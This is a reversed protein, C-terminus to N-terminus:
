LTELTKGSATDLVVVTNRNANAVFLVTGSRALVLENPHEQTPWRAVVKRTALDVVDVSAKGWLSVYLRQRVTDLALAYPYPAETNLAELLARARKTIAEDDLDRFPDGEGTPPVPLKESLALEWAVTATGAADDVALEDIAHGFLNAVWLRRGDPSAVLGSPVGRHKPDRLAFQRHRSLLGDAFDFAHVVEKGAGSAFLRRGSADFALGQFAEPLAVRSEIRAQRVDVVIIEHTGYGCHLVAAHRGDPHVAVNVPFDGLRVQKGAPALSWQNPLRVTGDPRSGPWNAAPPIARSSSAPGDAPGNRCGNALAATGFIALLRLLTSARM